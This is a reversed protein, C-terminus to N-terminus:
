RAFYIREVEGTADRVEITPGGGGRISPSPGSKSGGVFWMGDKYMADFTGYAAVLRDYSNPYKKNLEAIAKDLVEHKTLRPATPPRHECGLGALCVTIAFYLAACKM